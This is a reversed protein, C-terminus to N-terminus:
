ARAPVSPQVLLLGGALAATSFTVESLFESRFLSLVLHCVM